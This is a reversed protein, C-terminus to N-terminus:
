VLHHFSKHVERDACAAECTVDVHARCAMPQHDSEAVDTKMAYCVNSRADRTDYGRSVLSM